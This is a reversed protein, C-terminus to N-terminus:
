FIRLYSWLRSQWTFNSSRCVSIHFIIEHWHIYQLLQMFLMQVTGIHYFRWFYKNCFYLVFSDIAYGGVNFRIFLHAKRKNIECKRKMSKGIISHQLLKECWFHFLSFVHIVSIVGRKYSLGIWDVAILGSTQRRITLELYKTGGHVIVARRTGISGKM